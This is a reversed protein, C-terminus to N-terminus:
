GSHGSFWTPHFSTEFIPKAFCSSVSIILSHECRPTYRFACSYLTSPLLPTKHRDLSGKPLPFEILLTLTRPNESVELIECDSCFSCDKETLSVFRTGVIPDKHCRSCPVGDHRKTKPQKSGKFLDDILPLQEEKPAYVFDLADQSAVKRPPFPETIKMFLHNWPRRYRGKPSAADLSSSAFCGSCLNEGPRVVSSYRAGVIPNMGCASCSFSQHADPRPRRSGQKKAQASFRVFELFNVRGSGDQDMKKFAQTLEEAKATNGTANSVVLFEDLSIYGDQDLDFMTFAERLQRVDSFTFGGEQLARRFESDAANSKTPMQRSSRRRQAPKRQALSESILLSVHQRIAALYRKKKVLPSFPINGSFEVFVASPVLQKLEPLATARTINEMGAAALTPLLVTKVKRKSIVKPHALFAQMGTSIATRISSFVASLEIKANKGVSPLLAALPACVSDLVPLFSEIDFKATEVPAIRSVETVTIEFPLKQDPKAEDHEKLLKVHTSSMQCIFGRDRSDPSAVFAGLRLTPAYGGMIQTALHAQELVDIEQRGELEKRPPAKKVAVAPSSQLIQSASNLSSVIFNNISAKWASNQSHLFRALYITNARAHAIPNEGPHHEHITASLQKPLSKFPSQGFNVRVSAGAHVSVAPCLRGCVNAFAVGINAGNCTFSITAETRNFLAGVVSDKAVWRPGYSAGSGEWKYCFKNGDDSHYGYSGNHWGPMGLLPVPAPPFFGVAMAGMSGPDVVTVEFYFLSLSDPISVETRAIVVDMGGEPIHGVLFGDEELSVPGATGQFTFKHPPPATSLSSKCAEPAFPVPSLPDTIRPATETVPASRPSTPRPADVSKLQGLGLLISKMTATDQLDDDVFESSPVPLSPDVGVLVIRLLRFLLVQSIPDALLSGGSIDILFRIAEPQRCEEASASSAQLLGITCALLRRIKFFNSADTSMVQRLCTFIWTAAQKYSGTEAPAVERSMAGIVAMIATPAVERSVQAIYAGVIQRQNPVTSELLAPAQSASILRSLFSSAHAYSYIMERTDLVAGLRPITMMLYVGWASPTSPKEVRPKLTRSGLIMAEQLQAVTERRAGASFDSLISPISSMATSLLRRTFWSSISRIFRFLVQVPMVSQLETRMRIASTFNEIILQASNIIASISEIPISSSVFLCVQEAAAPFSLCSSQDAEVPRRLILYARDILSKCVEVYIRGKRLNMVESSQSSFGASASRQQASQQVKATAANRCSRLLSIVSVDMFFNRIEKFNGSSVGARVKDLAVADSHVHLSAAIVVGDLKELQLHPPPAGGYIQPLLWTM